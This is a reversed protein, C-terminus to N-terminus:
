IRRHAPIGPPQGNFPNQFQGIGKTDMTIARKIAGQGFRTRMKDMAQYLSAMKESNDFLNIQYGGGVLHSFRVGVLRVLVRRQYLQKFLDLTIAILTHDNATYAIKSQRTRTDFDAYRITVTVCSTLKDGMRLYYSLKEAMTSLIEKLSQMNTTDREFTISSSISKREHYAIVPSNDIGQAKHWIGYGLKGLVREMLELPMEQITEIREIGMSRLLQYTKDGVGPIKKVSLPALFHKETGKLIDLQGNPKAENTGIKSVTKTSSLAFSIPLNTERMIRQRLEGAWQYCGFFHDMGSVDIYFEDISTKEYLPSVEKIIETVTSSYKSYISGNGKIVIADPCLRKALKMPMASHIGYTRAEYSCAAVVGRDSTGGVLVPKGNLSPNLLRECSVFFTDLDIHIISRNM